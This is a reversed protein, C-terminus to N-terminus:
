VVFRGARMIPERTGDAQVGDVDSQETGIMFDVHTLSDNLGAETAEEDSMETGGEVAFRYARGLAVHSAANEDFLTEYFLLGSRFIPSDVSVLALEGLRRAGEDTDLLRDLVEQGVQAQADVVRGAEFRLSFGDILRGGYALPLSARVTGDVRGADPATFVEETPMNPIFRQGQKTATGGGTWRHRDPLGVTLDTGPGRLHLADYGRQTLLEARRQLTAAHEQWAAVPDDLDVRTAAFIAEWLKALAEDPSADPFVKAAWAPEAAAVITWPVLHSMTYESYRKGARQAAARATAVRAPDADAYAEPDSADISVFADGREAMREFMAARGLAVESFSDEPAEAFRIKAVETDAYLVTVYPSGARYAAAAIRRALPAGELSTSVTMRQGPRLNVGVRVVLDAYRELHADFDMRAMIGLATARLSARASM